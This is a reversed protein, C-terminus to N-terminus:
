LSSLLYRGQRDGPGFEFDVAKYGRAFYHSFIERTMQRWSRALDPDQEMMGAFGTPIAVTLRTDTLGLRVAACEV